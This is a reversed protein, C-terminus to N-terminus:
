FENIDLYNNIKKKERESCNLYRHALHHYRFLEDRRIKKFTYIIVHVKRLNAMEIAHYAESSIYPVRSKIMEKEFSSSRLDTIVFDDYMTTDDLSRSIVESMQNLNGNDDLLVYAYCSCGSIENTRLIM